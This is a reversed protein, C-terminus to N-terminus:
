DLHFFSDVFFRETNARLIALALHAFTFRRAALALRCFPLQHRVMDRPKRKMRFARRVPKYLPHGFTKLDMMDIAVVTVIVGMVEGQDLARIMHAQVPYETQLPVRAVHTFYASFTSGVTALIQAFPLPSLQGYLGGIHSPLLVAVLDPPDPQALRLLRPLLLTRQALHPGLSQPRM